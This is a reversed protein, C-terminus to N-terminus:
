WFRVIGIGGYLQNRDRTVPSDAADGLIRAYLLGAGVAWEPSIPQIFIAAARADRLGAGAQYSALGSQLSAAPTIGFFTETYDSSGYTTALSLGLTGYRGAPVWKRFGASAVWGGHSDGVDQLVSIGVSTYRQYDGTNWNRSLDLGLEITPDISPLADVEADGTEDRGFRLIGAPGFSWDPRELLDLALYNATLRVVTAGVAFQAAPAVAWTTQDSGIYRPGAGIGLAVFGNEDPTRLM